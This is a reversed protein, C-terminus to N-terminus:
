LNSRIAVKKENSLTHSIIANRNLPYVTSKYTEYSDNSLMPTDIIEQMVNLYPRTTQPIRIRQAEWATLTIMPRIPNM